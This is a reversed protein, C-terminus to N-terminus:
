WLQHTSCCDATPDPCNGCYRHDYGNSAPSRKSQRRFLLLPNRAVRELFCFFEAFLPTSNVRHAHGTLVFEVFEQTGKGQVVLKGSDYFVVNTKEKEGAFRAYPVERFSYHHSELWARTSAVRRSRFDSVLKEASVTLQGVRSEVVIEYRGALKPQLTGGYHGTPGPVVTLPVEEPDGPTKVKAVVKANATGEGKDDRVVASIRVGKLPQNKIFDKRISQLVPMSRSM